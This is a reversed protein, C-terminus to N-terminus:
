PRSRHGPLAQHPRPGPPQLLRVTGGQKYAVMRYGDAKEEYVWGEHHIPRSILTPHALDVTPIPVSRLTDARALQSSSFRRNSEIGFGGRRRDHRRM